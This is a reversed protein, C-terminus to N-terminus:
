VLFFNTEYSFYILNISVKQRARAKVLNAKPVIKMAYSKQTDLSTCWYVKAFGGKGLLKGRLYKHITSKGDASRRIEEIICSSSSDDIDSSNKTSSTATSSSTVQKSSIKSKERQQFAMATSRVDKETSKGVNVHTSANNLNPNRESLPHIARRSKGPPSFSGIDSNMQRQKHVKHHYDVENNNNLQTGRTRYSSSYTM